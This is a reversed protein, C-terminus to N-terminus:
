WIDFYWYRLYSYGWFYAGETTKAC